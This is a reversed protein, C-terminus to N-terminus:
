THFESEDTVLIFEICSLIKASNNVKVYTAFTQQISRKLKIHRKFTIYIYSFVPPLHKTKINYSLDLEFYMACKTKKKKTCYLFLSTTPYTIYFELSFSLLLHLFIHSLYLPNYLLLNPFLHFFPFVHIFSFFIHVFMKWKPFQTATIFVFFCM